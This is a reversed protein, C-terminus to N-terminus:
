IADGDDPLQAAVELRGQAIEAQYPTYPTYWGPNELVNRLIVSPTISDYYGLGIFSRFVQNSRPSAACSACSSTSARATRCTSRRRRPPHAGPIAEDILADLSPAGVAKLMADRRTPTPDSTAPSSRSSTTSLRHRPDAIQSVQGSRQYQAADLLAGAEGPDALKIVVM